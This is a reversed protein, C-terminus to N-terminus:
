FTNPNDYFNEWTPTINRVGEREIVCVAQYEDSETVVNVLAGRAKVRDDSFCEGRTATHYAILKMDMPVKANVTREGVTKVIIDTLGLVTPTYVSHVDDTVTAEVQVDEALVEMEFDRLPAEEPNGYTFFNCMLSGQDNYYRINWGKGGEIVRRSPEKKVLDRMRKAIALNDELSGQLVVDVDHIDNVNGLLPAGTLGIDFDAFDVGLIKQANALDRKFHETDLNPDKMVKLFVDRASLYAIFDGKSFIQKYRAFFPNNDTQDLTPDYQALIRGRDRYTVPDYTGPHITTKRYNQGFLKRNGNNDPAYLVEGILRNGPHAWGEANIILGDKRVYFEADRVAPFAGSGIPIALKGFIENSKLAETVSHSSSHEPNSM